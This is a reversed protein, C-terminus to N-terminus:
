FDQKIAHLFDLLACNVAHDKSFYRLKFILCNRQKNQFMFVHFRQCNNYISPLGQIWLGWVLLKSRFVYQTIKFYMFSNLQGSQLLTKCQYTFNSNMQLVQDIQNWIKLESTVLTFTLAVNFGLVIVCFFWLVNSNWFNILELCLNLFATIKISFKLNHKNAVLRRWIKRLV